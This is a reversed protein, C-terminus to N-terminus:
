KYRSTINKYLAAVKQDHSAKINEAVKAAEGYEAASKELSRKAASAAKDAIGDGQALDASRKLHQSEEQAEAIHKDLEKKLIETPREVKHEFTEEFKDQAEKRREEIEKLASLDKINSRMSEYMRDSAKKQSVLTDGQEKHYDLNKKEANIKGKIEKIDRM